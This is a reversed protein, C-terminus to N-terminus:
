SDFYRRVGIINYQRSSQTFRMSLVKEDKCETSVDAGNHILHLIRDALTCRWTCRGCGMGDCELECVQARQCWDVM